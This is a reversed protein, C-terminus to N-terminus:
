LLCIDFLSSNRLQAFIERQLEEGMKMAAFVFWAEAFRASTWCSIPLLLCSGLGM